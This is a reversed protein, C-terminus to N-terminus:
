DYSPFEFLLEQLDPLGDEDAPGKTFVTRIESATNLIIEKLEGSFIEPYTAFFNEFSAYAQRYNMQERECADIALLIRHGEKTVLPGMESFNRPLWFESILRKLEPIELATVQQEKAVAYFLKGVHDYLDRIDPKM